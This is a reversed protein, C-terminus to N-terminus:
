TTTWINTYIVKSCSTRITLRQCTIIQYLMLHCKFINRYRLTTKLVSLQQNFFRYTHDKKFENKSKEMVKERDNM